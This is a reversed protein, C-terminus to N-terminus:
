TDHEGNRTGIARSAAACAASPLSAALVAQNAPIRRRKRCALTGEFVLLVASPIHSLRSFRRRRRFSNAYRGPRVLNGVLNQALGFFEDLGIFPAVFRRVPNAPWVTVAIATTM